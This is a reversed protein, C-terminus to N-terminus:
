RVENIATGLFCLFFFFFFSPPFSWAFGTWDLVIDVCYCLFLLYFLFISRLIFIVAVTLGRFVDLSVLRHHGSTSSPLSCNNSFATTNQDNRASRSQSIQLAMEVDDDNHKELARPPQNDINEDYYSKIREYSGMGILYDDWGYTDFGNMWYRQKNPSFCGLFTWYVFVLFLFIM